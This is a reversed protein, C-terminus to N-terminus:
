LLHYLAPPPDLGHHLGPAVLGQVHRQQGSVTREAKGGPRIKHKMPGQPMGIVVPQERAQQFLNKGRGPAHFIQWRHLFVIAFFFLKGALFLQAIHQAIDHQAQGTRTQLAHAYPLAQTKRQGQQVAAMPRVPRARLRLVAAGGGTNRHIQWFLDPDLQPLLDKLPTRILYERTATQVVTYKDDARFYLVDAVDVLHVENGVNAHIWRLRKEGPTLLARVSELWQEAAPAERWGARLREVEHFMHETDIVMGPGLVNVTEDRLIGSPMLNLVFKGKDNIVTHGANNGGQYRVVWQVRSGLLDTAKGKGEDGWQAGILVIAPM